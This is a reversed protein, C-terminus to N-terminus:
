HSRYHAHIKEKLPHHNFLVKCLNNVRTVACPFHPHNQHDRLKTIFDEVEFYVEEYRAWTYAFVCWRYALTWVAGLALLRAVIELPTLSAYDVLSVPSYALFLFVFFSVVKRYTAARIGNLSDLMFSNALLEYVETRNYAEVTLESSFDPRPLETM